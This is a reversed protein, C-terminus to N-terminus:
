FAQGISFHMRWRRSPQGNVLLGPIPNLQWGFDFRIPGFPTQYRLGPGVAYRLDNLAFDFPNAWVNGADVFIVGGFNGRLRARLEASLALMSDGGIPLGSSLPGIEFRGWGRVSTSGGLFYKKSFPVNASEAGVPNIGGIQVRTAVVLNDGLPLYDRGDASAAYYNFTGPVIRGAQETHFALQYGRHPDLVSDATSHQLDLGLANLTGDQRGTVPDLGLAILSSRLTPDNLAVDSIVSSDRESTM